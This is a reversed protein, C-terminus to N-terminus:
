LRFVFLFLYLNLLSLRFSHVPKYGGLFFRYDFYVSVGTFVPLTKSSHLTGAWTSSMMTSVFTRGHLGSFVQLDVCLEVDSNVLNKGACGMIFVRCQAHPLVNKRKSCKCCTLFLTYRQWVETCDKPWLQPIQPAWADLEEWRARQLAGEVASPEMSEEAAPFANGLLSLWLCTSLPPM